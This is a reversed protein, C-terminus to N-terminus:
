LAAHLEHPQHAPGHGAVHDVGRSGSTDGAVGALVPSLTQERGQFRLKMWDARGKAHAFTRFTRRISTFSMPLLTQPICAVSVKQIFGVKQWPGARIHPTVAEAMLHLEYSNLRAWDQKNQISMSLLYDGYPNTCPASPIGTVIM